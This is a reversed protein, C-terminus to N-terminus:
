MSQSCDRTKKKKKKSGLLVLASWGEEKKGSIQVIKSRPHRQQFFSPSTPLIPFKDRVLFLEKLALSGKEKFNDLVFEKLGLM